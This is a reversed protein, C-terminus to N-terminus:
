PIRGPRNLLKSNGQDPILTMMRPAIMMSMLEQILLKAAYPLFVQSVKTTNKCGRCDFSNKKLNAISILGCFDCIHVRYKDAFLFLRERLFHSCGHSLMCDREMEGFRLGGDRARGELPQRTLMQTPGRARSHIKDDVMHKLRQYFTPGLFIPSNLKKGTHGNYMIENGTRQFGLKFLTDAIKDVTTEYEFPTADGEKGNISCVKSLLCEILHGITMRSPICHPNIILDPTIGDRTFPLDEKRFTIGCTGKQGHRSAFKDGIQPIRLSRVKVKVFRQGEPTTTLVVTDVIGSESTRLASSSCKKTQQLKRNTLGAEDLANRQLPTTKGIIIDDGSVRTGPAILGDNEIKDYSGYKMGVCTQKNPKEFVEESGHGMDRSLKDSYSRYFTSRMFGFDISSSSVIISDEQNYGSYCAVAVTANQGAPLERFKLYDMNKTAALPKQPYCMIHATTDFRLQYNSTYIGMAQKGMASQYVNRPSQNHDPFPIISACVGLIMAPHIECHTYTESYVFQKNNHSINNNKRDRFLQAVDKIDKVMMACLINDEEEVDIYEILGNILLHEWTWENNLLKNIHKRRVKLQQTKEEVIYLPRLCRGAETWVKIEKNSIDWVISIECMKESDGMDGDDFDMDDDNKDDMNLSKNFDERRINKLSDVIEKPNDCVGFWIGNVFVKTYTPILAPSVDDLTECGFEELYTLVFDKRIGVAVSAMLALNKVLGCAQGEPTEAPCCMGWHTNHLMRPKAMKGDRGLPTNMRRLHSLTSVYTLRQLIQSVGTKKSPARDQTCWNGTALSYSLGSSITEGNDFLGKLDFQQGMASNSTLLRKIKSKSKKIQINWLIKFMHELLPGAIDLRKNGFNDRDDEDRRGLIACCLKNVMYGLYYAKKIECFQEISVHAIFEKQLIDKAWQIREAKDTGPLTGRRGIFDLAIDTTQVYYSEELSPRCLEMIQKDKFDYVILELISRDSVYGLARFVVCLPIPKKVYPITVEFVEGSVPSGVPRKVYNIYNAAVSRTSNGDVQCRIECMWRKDKASKYCMIHNTAMREQAVLVRERGNIIFYGGQDFPCEGYASARFNPDKDANTRLTCLMSGVMVPIKGLPATVKHDYTDQNASTVDTEQYTEDDIEYIKRSIECEVEAAYTFHRLRCYSPTLPQERGDNASLIPPTIYIQGFNIVVKTRYERGDNGTDTDPSLVVIAGQDQVIDQVTTKVFEDFSAVQQRVLRYIYM